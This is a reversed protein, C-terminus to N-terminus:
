KKLKSEYLKIWDDGSMKSALQGILDFPIDDMKKFRICSKGMDLKNSSHKPYENLFWEMLEESAYLGMHYVAVFNKQSAVSIFPLPDSPKCHYGSPYISHPIVWSPMNYQMTQEFGESLNGDITDALKTMAEIRDEPVKSIYEEINKAEIKM